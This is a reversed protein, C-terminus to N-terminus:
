NMYFHMKHKKETEKKKLMSFNTSYSDTLILGYYKHRFENDMVM